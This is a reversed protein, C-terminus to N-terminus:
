SLVFGRELEFVWAAEHFEDPAAQQHETDARAHHRQETGALHRIGIDGSCWGLSRHGSSM